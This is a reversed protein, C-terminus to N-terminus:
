DRLEGAIKRGLTIARDIEGYVLPGTKGEVVFSEPEHIIEVGCEQMVAEIVAAAGGESGELRTEFAFGIKDPVMNKRMWKFLKKYRGSTGGKQTPCGFIWVEAIRLEDPTTTGGSKASVDDFGVEKMGSCIAKAIQETNGFKSDYLIIATM